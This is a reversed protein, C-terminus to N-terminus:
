KGCAGGDSLGPVEDDGGGECVRPRDDEAAGHRVGAVPLRPDGGGDEGAFVAGGSVGRDAQWVAAAGWAGSALGLMQAAIGIRGENLTEIAIRYGTGIEGLVSAAPVRCEDFLLECTSSARIGLKDEKKGVTFGPTEREVLFATIGKYGLEADVTAFVIFLGAEAASSIWLKNGNLVFSDGERQATTRLAFADSGSAAESLAYSCVTDTATRPLYKAKQEATGFTMLANTTLTNQVDVMTGVAPDVASIEEIVLISDFFTGGGGGFEPPVGVGMLGQRFLKAILGPDMTQAEDMAKVLPAIENLAFKRVADRLMQEEEGLVLLSTPDGSRSQEANM